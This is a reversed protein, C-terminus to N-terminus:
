PTEVAWLQFSARETNSSGLTVTSNSAHPAPLTVRTERWGDSPALHLHVAPAGPVLVDLDTAQTAASRLVLSFAREPTLHTLRFSETVGPPVIRAADWLDEMPRSPNPLLKMFVFGIHPVSLSWRHEKESM